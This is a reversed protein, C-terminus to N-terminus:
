RLYIMDYPALQFVPKKKPCSSWTAAITPRGQTAIAKEGIRIRIIATGDSDFALSDVQENQYFQNRSDNENYYSGVFTAQLNDCKPEFAIDHSGVNLSISNKENKFLLESTQSTRRYSVKRPSSQSLSLMVDGMFKTNGDLYANGSITFQQEGNDESVDFKPDVMRQQFQSEVQYDFFYKDLVSDTKFKNYRRDIVLSRKEIIKAFSAGKLDSKSSPTLSLELRPASYVVKSIPRNDLNLDKHTDVKEYYVELLEDGNVRTTATESSSYVACNFSKLFYKSYSPDESIKQVEIFNDLKKKNMRECPYIVPDAPFAQGKESKKLHPLMKDQDIAMDFIRKVENVRNVAYASVNALSGHYASLGIKAADGSYTKANHDVPRDKPTCGM